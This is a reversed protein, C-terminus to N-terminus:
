RYLDVRTPPMRSWGRVRKSALTQFIEIAGREFGLSCGFFYALWLRTKVSGVEREAAERIAYLRDHALRFTHAYHERLAEVDHM